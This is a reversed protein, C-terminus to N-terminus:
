PVAALAPIKTLKAIFLGSCGCRIPDFRVTGPILGPLWPPQALALTAPSSGSSCGSPAAGTSASVTAANGVRSSPVAGAAGPAAAAAIADDAVAAPRTHLRMFQQKLDSLPSSFPDAAAPGLAAAAAASADASLATDSGAGPAACGSRTAGSDAVAAAALPLQPPPLLDTIPVLQAIPHAGLFWAIVDENQARTLSCTSYVLTGGTRLRAFGNCLLRRQLAVVASVDGAATAAASAHAKPVSAAPAASHWADCSCLPTVEHMSAEPEATRAANLRCDAIGADAADSRSLICPIAVACASHVSGTRARLRGGNSPADDGDALSISVASSTECGKAGVAADAVTPDTGCLVSVLPRSVPAGVGARGTSEANVAAGDLRVTAPVAAAGMAAKTSPALADAEVAAASLATRTPTSSSDLRRQSAHADWGDLGRQSAFKAVHRISGDHSCEADVLVKDYFLATAGPAPVNSDAVQSKNPQSHGCPEYSTSSPEPRPPALHCCATPQAPGCSSDSYDGTDAGSVRGNCTGLASLRELERLVRAHLPKVPACVGKRHPAVASVARGVGGSAAADPSTGEEGEVGRRASDACDLEASTRPTAPIAAGTMHHAVAGRQGPIAQHTRGSVPKKVLPQQKVSRMFVNEALSDFVLSTARNLSREPHRCGPLAPTSAADASESNRACCVSMAAASSALAAVGGVTAHEPHAIVTHGPGELSVVTAGTTRAEETDLSGKRMAAEGTRVESDDSTAADYFLGRLGRLGGLCGGLAGEESAAGSADAAAPHSAAGSSSATSSSLSGGAAPITAASCLRVCPAAGATCRQEHLRSGARSRATHAHTQTSTRKAAARDQEVEAILAQLLAQQALRTHPAHTPLALPAGLRAGCVAAVLSVPAGPRESFTTGDACHLQLRWRDQPCGPTSAGYKRLMTCAAALRSHSIDVGTLSGRCGMLDAILCLKAGPACCVDLVADGPQPDLIYVSAASSVDMGYIHGARYAESSALQVSSDAVFFNPLWSVPRVSTHLALASAATGAQLSNLRFFRPFVSSDLVYLRPDLGHEHCFAAMGDM